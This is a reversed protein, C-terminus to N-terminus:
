GFITDLYMMFVFGFILTLASFDHFGRKHTEPIIEGVIIFLMAGAAFGVGAAM